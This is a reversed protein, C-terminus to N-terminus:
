NGGKAQPRVYRTAGPKKQQIQVDKKNKFLKRTKRYAVKVAPAIWFWNKKIWQAAKTISGFVDVPDKDKQTM